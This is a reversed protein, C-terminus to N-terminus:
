LFHPGPGECKPAPGFEPPPLEGLLMTGCRRVETPPEAPGFIRGRLLGDKGVRYLHYMRTSPNYLRLCPIATKRNSM